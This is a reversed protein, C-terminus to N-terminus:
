VDGLMALLKKADQLQKRQVASLGGNDNLGAAELIADAVEPFNAMLAVVNNARPEARGELWNGTCRETVGLAAPIARIADPVRGIVLPWDLALATMTKRFLQEPKRFAM